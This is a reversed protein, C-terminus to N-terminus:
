LPIETEMPSLYNTWSQKQQHHSAAVAVICVYNVIIM